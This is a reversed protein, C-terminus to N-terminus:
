VEPRLNPCPQNSSNNVKAGLRLQDLCCWGGLPKYEMGVFQEHGDTVVLKGMGKGAGPYEGVKEEDPGDEGAGPGGQRQAWGQAPLTADPEEKKALAPDHGARAAERKEKLTELLQHAPHSVMDLSALQVLTKTPFALKADPDRAPTRPPLSSTALDSALLQLEVAKILAQGTIGGNEAQV